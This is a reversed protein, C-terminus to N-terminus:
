RRRWHGWVAVDLPAWRTAWDRPKPGRPLLAVAFGHAHAATLVHLVRRESGMNQLSMIIVHAGTEAAWTELRKWVPHNTGVFQRSGKAELCLTVGVRAAERMHALALRPRQGGYKRTRLRQITDWDEDAIDIVRVVKVRVERGQADYNGTWRWTYGARRMNGWHVVVAFGDRTAQINQDIYRYGLRRARRIAALSDGLLYPMFHAIRPRPIPWRRPYWPGQLAPRPAYAGLVLAVGLALSLYYM